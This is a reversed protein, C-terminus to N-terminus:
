LFTETEGGGRELSALYKKVKKRCKRRKRRSPLVKCQAPDTIAFEGSAVMVYNDREEFCEEYELTLQWSCEGDSGPICYGYETECEEAVESFDGSKLPNYYCKDPTWYTQGKTYGSGTSVSTMKIDSAGMTSEIKCECIKEYKTMFGEKQQTSLDLWVMALDCTSHLWYKSGDENTAKNGTVVYDSSKVFHTGCFSSPSYFEITKGTQRKPLKLSDIIRATIRNMAKEPVNVVDMIEVRVVLDSTCYRQQPHVSPCQGCAKIESVFAAGILSFLLLAKMKLCFTTVFRVGLQSTVEQKLLLRWMRMTKFMSM